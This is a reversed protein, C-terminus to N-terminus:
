HNKSTDVREARSMLKFDLDITETSGVQRRVAAMYIYNESSRTSFGLWGRREQPRRIQLEVESTRKSSASDAPDLPEESVRM